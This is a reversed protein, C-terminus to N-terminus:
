LGLLFERSFDNSFSLLNSKPKDENNGHNCNYGVFGKSKADEDPGILSGIFFDVIAILLIM